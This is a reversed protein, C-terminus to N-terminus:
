QKLSSNKGWQSKSRRWMLRTGWGESVLKRDRNSKGIRTIEYLLFTVFIFVLVVGQCRSPVLEQWQRGEERQTEQSQDQSLFPLTDLLVNVHDHWIPCRQILYSLFCSETVSSRGDFPIHADWTYVDDLLEPTCINHGDQWFLCGGNNKYYLLSSLICMCTYFFTTAQISIDGM